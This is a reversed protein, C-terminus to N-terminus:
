MPRAKLLSDLSMAKPAIVMGDKLRDLGSYVIKEGPSIGKEVLYYNGSRSTVTIPKSAVKNSDGLAFVFIKDQLEFSAEQPIVLTSTFAQPIRIKGTNGSRLLGGANPFSTRFSITGTTKSFQGDVTGVKGKQPYITNDSLILEVPQLQRIKDEVTKGPFQNKFQIFDNESLSFYAYVEKIESLVTLAQADNKVVLSGIKSPIRGIYGDVPASILTYGENIQANSVQAEAQAVNAKAADYAAQATKLQVDSIVNNKVLPELKSVNIEASSLNAKAALLSARANNLQETFPRADLRFLPQGRKVFAGEDVYIKELYGDVQSRVDINKTGELSANFEKYTTVAQNAVSIVPLSQPPPAGAEPNGSSTSCGTLVAALGISCFLLLHRHMFNAYPNM